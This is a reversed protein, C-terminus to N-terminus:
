IITNQKKLKSIESFVLLLNGPSYFIRRAGEVSLNDYFQTHSNIPYSKFRRKLM